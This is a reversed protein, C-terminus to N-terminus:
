GNIYTFKIIIYNNTQSQMEVKVCLETQELILHFVLKRCLEESVDPLDDPLKYFSNGKIIGDYCLLKNITDAAKRTFVKMKNTGQYFKIDTM